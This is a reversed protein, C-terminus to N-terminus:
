VWEISFDRLRELNQDGNFHKSIEGAALNMDVKAQIKSKAKPWVVSRLYEILLRRNEERAFPLSLVREERCFRKSTTMAPVNCLYLM